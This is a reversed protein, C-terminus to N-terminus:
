LKGSTLLIPQRLLIYSNSGLISKQDINHKEYFDELILMMIM